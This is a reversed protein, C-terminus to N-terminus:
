GAINPDFFLKEFINPFIFIIISILTKLYRRFFYYNMLKVKESM